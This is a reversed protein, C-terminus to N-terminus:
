LNWSNSIRISRHFEYMDTQHHRCCRAFFNGVQLFDEKILNGVYYVDTRFPDRPAHPDRKFEPVSKDGGFIPVELPNVDDPNYRRALGFDTWYYKVPRATRSYPHVYGRYDRTRYDAAFHFLDPLVPKPDMMVNLTM